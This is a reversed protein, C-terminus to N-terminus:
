PHSLIASLEVPMELVLDSGARGPWENGRLLLAEDMVCGIGGVASIDLPPWSDSLGSAQGEEGKGLGLRRERLGEIDSMFSSHSTGGSDTM